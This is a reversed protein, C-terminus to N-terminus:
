RNKLDNTTERLENLLRANEIAIVAQAAFNTCLRSRSTPLPGFKRATSPSSVSLNKTRSCRCASRLAFVPSEVAHGNRSSARTLTPQPSDPIHVTNTRMRRISSAALRQNSRDGRRSSPLCRRCTTRRRSFGGGEYLYLNGFKAECIRTANELMTAFVPELDGPSSRYGAAGGVDSDAAGAIQAATRQAAARERHRHSSPRRLETSARDAQRHLSSSRPPLLVHAM